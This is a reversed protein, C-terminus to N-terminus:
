HIDQINMKKLELDRKRKKQIVFRILLMIITSINQIFFFFLSQMLLTIVFNIVPLIYGAAPHKRKSLIVQLCLALANILILM